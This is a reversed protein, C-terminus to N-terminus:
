KNHVHFARLARADGASEPVNVGIERYDPRGERYRRASDEFGLEFAIISAPGEVGSLARCYWLHVQRRREARAGCSRLQRDGANARSLLRM